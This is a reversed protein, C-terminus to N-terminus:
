ALSRKTLAQTTSEKHDYCKCLEILVEPRSTVVYSLAIPDSKPNAGAPKFRLVYSFIVQADKRSEFPLLALNTALLYLLDNEIM